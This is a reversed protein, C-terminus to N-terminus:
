APEGDVEKKAGIDLNSIVTWDEPNKFSRGNGM